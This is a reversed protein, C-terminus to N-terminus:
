FTNDQLTKCWQHYPGILLCRVSLNMGLGDLACSRGGPAANKGLLVVEKRSNLSHQINRFTVREELPMRGM